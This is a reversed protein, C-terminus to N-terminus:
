GRQDSTQPLSPCILPPSRLHATQTRVADATLGLRGSVSKSFLQCRSLRAVGPAGTREAFRLGVFFRPPAVVSKRTIPHLLSRLREARRIVELGLALLRGERDEPLLPEMYLIADYFPNDAM